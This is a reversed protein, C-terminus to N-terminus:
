RASVLCVSYPEGHEDRHCDWHGLRIQRVAPVTIPQWGVVLSTVLGGLAKFVSVSADAPAGLRDAKALLAHLDALTTTSGFPISATVRSTVTGAVNENDM